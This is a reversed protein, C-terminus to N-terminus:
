QRLMKANLLGFKKSIVSIECTRSNIVKFRDQIAKVERLLEILSEEQWLKLCREPAISHDKSKSKKNPKHLLLAPVVHIGKLAM